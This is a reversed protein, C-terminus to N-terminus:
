LRSWSSSSTGAFFTTTFQLLWVLAHAQGVHCTHSIEDRSLPKRPFALELFASSQDAGAEQYQTPVTRTEFPEPSSVAVGDRKSKQIYGEDQPEDFFGDIVSKLIAEEAFQESGAGCEM